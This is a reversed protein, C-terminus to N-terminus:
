GTLSFLPRSSIRLLFPRSLSVFRPYHLDTFTYGASEGSREFVPETGQRGGTTTTTTAAVKRRRRESRKTQVRLETENRDGRRQQNRASASTVPRPRFVPETGNRETGNTVTSPDLVRAAHLGQPEHFSRPAFLDARSTM